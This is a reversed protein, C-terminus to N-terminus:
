KLVYVDYNEDTIANHFGAVKITKQSWLNLSEPSYRFVRDYSFHIEFPGDKKLDFGMSMLVHRGQKKLDEATQLFEELSFEKKNLTTFHTAKTYQKERPVYIDNSVYYPMSELLYDPEGVLVYKKEPPQMKIWQALVRSSSYERMSGAKIAHYAMIAQAMLILTFCGNILLKSLKKYPIGTSVWFVFLMLLYAFNEHYYGYFPYFLQFFFSIGIMSLVAVGLAFPRQLLIIYTGFIILTVFKRFRDGMIHSFTDGPLFVAQKIADLVKHFTM